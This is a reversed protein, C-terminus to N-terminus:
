AYMRRLELVDGVHSNSIFQTQVEAWKLLTFVDAARYIMYDM